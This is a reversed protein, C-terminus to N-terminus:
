LPFFIVTVGSLKTHLRWPKRRNGASFSARAFSAARLCRTNGFNRRDDERMVSIGIFHPNRYHRVSEPTRMAAARAAHEDGRVQAL